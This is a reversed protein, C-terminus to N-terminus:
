RRRAPTTTTRPTSARRRPLGRRHLRRQLDGRGQGPRRFEHLRLLPRGPPDQPRAQREQRRARAEALREHTGVAGGSHDCIAPVGTAIFTVRPDLGAAAIAQGGGQSAGSVCVTSGDWEPRSTLFDIARVLRLFMGSSIARKAARAAAHPIAKRADDPSLEEYYAAPKGNPIGHANIDMALAGTKAAWAAAGLSSSRVGAGHVYLIAPLSKPAAKRPRAFYGSVPMGARVPVQVDFCEVAQDPWAVPTLVPKLPVAALKPRRRPELVRRFRGAGAPEASDEASRDRGRGPRKAATEIGARWSM